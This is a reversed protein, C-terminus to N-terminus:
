RGSGASRRRRRDPCARIPMRPADLHAVGCRGLPEHQDVARAVDEAGEEGQRRHAPRVARRDVRHEAEGRHQEPQHLVPRLVVEDHHEIGPPRREAVIEVVLVLGVAGLRRRLQDRLERQDALRGPSEAQRHGLQRAELGVIEDGGIGPECAIGALPHRDDGGVLIQHLEDAGADLHPIRHLGLRDAAVLHDLAEADARLQHTVAQRQCAVRGVVHRAHRADADLRCRLQEGLVARQFPQQGVEVLDLLRLPALHQLLVDVVRPDGPLQHAQAVVRRHRQRQVLQAPALRVLAREQGEQLVVAELRQHRADASELGRGLGLPRFDLRRGTGGPQDAHAPDLLQVGDEVPRLRQPPDGDVGLGGREIHRPRLEHPKAEGDLRALAEVQRNGMDVIEALEDVPLELQLGHDVPQARHRAIRRDQLDAVVDLVVHAHEAMVPQLQRRDVVRHQDGVHEVAGAVAVAHVLQGLAMEAM